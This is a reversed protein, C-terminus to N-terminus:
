FANLERKIQPWSKEGVLPPAKSSPAVAKEARGTGPVPISLDRVYPDNPKPLSPRNNSVAIRPLHYVGQTLENSLNETFYRQSTCDPYTNALTVNGNRDLSHNELVVAHNPTAPDKPNPYRYPSIRSAKLAVVGRRNLGVGERLKKLERARWRRNRNRWLELRENPDKGTLIRSAEDIEPGIVDDPSFMPLGTEKSYIKGDSLGTRRAIPRRPITGAPPSSPNLNKARWDRVNSVGLKAVATSLVFPWLAGHGSADHQLENERLRIYVPKGNKYLRVTVGGGEDPSGRSFMKKLESIPLSAASALLGCNSLKGQNLDDV